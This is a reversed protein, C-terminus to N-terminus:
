GTTVPGRQRTLGAEFQLAGQIACGEGGFQPCVTEALCEALVTELLGFM